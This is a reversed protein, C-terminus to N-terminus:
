SGRWLYSASSTFFKTLRLLCFLTSPSAVWAELQRPNNPEPMKRQYKAWWYLPYYSDIFYHSSFLWLLLLTGTLIPVFFVLPFFYVAYAFSHWARILPRASKNVATYHSQFLWDAIFHWLALLAFIGGIDALETM